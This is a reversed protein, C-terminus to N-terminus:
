RRSQFSLAALWFSEPLQQKDSELLEVAYAFPMGWRAYDDQTWAPLEGQHAVLYEACLYEQFTEHRFRVFEDDCYIIPGQCLAELQNEADDGWIAPIEDLPVDRYGRQRSKFALTALLEFTQRRDWQLKTGANEAKENERKYWARLSRRYLGARGDPLRKAPSEKYVEVVLRLLMPNEAVTKGGPM